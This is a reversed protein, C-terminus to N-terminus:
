IVRRAWADVADALETMVEEQSRKSRKLVKFSHDGGEVIHMTAKCGLRQVIPTLLGLDALDDRTGQVFLMPVGIHSLHEARKVAPRKPAHLPYGLSSIRASMSKGGAVLPLDPAEASAAAIAARVTQELVNSTDPSRRGGEMYPFQYRFTAIDRRALDTAVREMFPHKMGAGAGHGFVYLLQADYPRLLLASVSGRSEVSILSRETKV